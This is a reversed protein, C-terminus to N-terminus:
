QYSTFYYFKFKRYSRQLYKGTKIPEYFVSIDTNINIKEIAPKIVRDHFHGWRSHDGKIQAQEKM